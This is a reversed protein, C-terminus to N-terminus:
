AQAAETQWAKRGLSYCRRCTAAIVATTEDGQTWGPVDLKVQQGCLTRLDALMGWYRGFADATVAHVTETRDNTVYVYATM